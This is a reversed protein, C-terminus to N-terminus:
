KALYDCERCNEPNYFIHFSFRWLWFMHVLYMSRYNWFKFPLPLPIAAPKLGVQDIQTALELSALAVCYLM